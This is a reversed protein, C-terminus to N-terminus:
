FHYLELPPLTGIVSSSLLTGARNKLVSVPASGTLSQSFFKDLASRLIKPASMLVSSYPQGIPIGSQRGMEDRLPSHFGYSM